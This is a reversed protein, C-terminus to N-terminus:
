RKRAVVLYAWTWRESKDIKDLVYSFGQIILGALQIIGTYKVPGKCFRYLNYVFLQGFTVWFGSMASIEVIDFGSKEFLYKLGFKTYRFFDRPEEHVHWIFPVTYIAHGGPKLVRCCEAIAKGPEELHELVANCVASDFCADAVPIEYAGSLIDVHTKDHMGGPHDVGVHDTVFPAFMKRYPKTGCGIDVLRGKLYLSACNELYKDAIHNVLINKLDSAM